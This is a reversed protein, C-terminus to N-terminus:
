SIIPLERARRRAASRVGTLRAHFPHARNQDLNLPLDVSGIVAAEVLWPQECPFWCVRANNALWANLAAEGDRGFTM